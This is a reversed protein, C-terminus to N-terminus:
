NGEGPDEPMPDLACILRTFRAVLRYVAPDINDVPSCSIEVFALTKFAAEVVGMIDYCESLAGNVRNSCVQVEYTVDLQEDDHDLTVASSRQNHQAEEIFCAPFSSPIPELKGACYIDAGHDKVRAEVYSYIKNRTMSM